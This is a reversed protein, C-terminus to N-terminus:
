TVLLRNRIIHNGTQTSQCISLLNRLSPDNRVTVARMRGWVTELSEKMCLQPFTYHWASKKKRKKKKKQWHTWATLVFVSSGAIAQSWTLIMAFDTPFQGERGNCDKASCWSSHRLQRREFWQSGGVYTNNSHSELVSTFLIDLLM